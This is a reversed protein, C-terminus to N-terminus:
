RATSTSSGSALANELRGIRAALRAQEADVDAITTLRPLCDMGRIWALGDPLPQRAAAARSGGLVRDQRLHAAPQPRRCHLVPADHLLPRHQDRDPQPRRAQRLYPRRRLHRGAGRRDDQHLPDRARRPGSREGDRRHRHHRHRRLPQPQRVGVAPARPGPRRHARRRALDVALHDDGGAPMRRRLLRGLGQPLRDVPARHRLRRDAAVGQRGLRLHRPGLAEPRLGQVRPAPGRRRQPHGDGPRHDRRPALGRVVQVQRRLHRGDRPAAPLHAHRAIRPQRLDRADGREDARAPLRAADRCHHRPPRRLLARRRGEAGPLAPRGRRAAPHVQQRRRRDPPVARRPAFRGRSASRRCGGAATVLIRKMRRGRRRGAGRRAEFLAARVAAQGRAREISEYIATILELSRRGAHGDVSPPLGDRLSAVVSDLFRTHGFGYVNPPNESFQEVTDGAGPADDAFKWTRLQNVAFGAIEVSGKEGIISLSGELDTPRVATTAEITGLAGSRFKLVVVGTDEAEIRASARISKAFVSEVDGMMWELMDVHHSAQNALVGGDHAWTGRWADQDYYAQPRCWRVRVTGLVLKGFRGADLAERTKVVPVNFRNQKVVFLKVGHQECEAIMRDADDLTLAMPKEVVVHKGHRAIAVAHEAHAGSPTLVCVVDIREGAGRMMEDLSAFREVGYREGLAEARGVDSDCVAVLKAGAVQANGLIDAHRKAIRGCGLLAFNIMPQASVASRPPLDPSASAPRRARGLGRVAAGARAYLRLSTRIADSFLAVVLNAGLGTLLSAIAAGYAGYRPILFLNMAVNLAIAVLDVYMSAAQRNRAVLWRGRAVGFFVFAAMWAQVALVPAAAAFASGYVLQVLWSSALSTCAALLIGAWGMAGFLLATRRDDAAGDGSARATVMMPFLATMLAVPIFYWLETLRVAASFVGVEVYGSLNAVMVQDVRLYLLIAMASVLMPLADKLMQRALQPDVRWTAPNKQDRRYLAFLFLAALAIEASTALILQELGAGGLLLAVKLLASAFFAGNRAYVAYKMRNGSQFWCEVVDASQFILVLGALAALGLADPSVIAFALLMAAYAFCGGGLKLALSTGLIREADHPRDVLTRVAVADLGLTAVGSFISVFALVYNFRGFDASGLYRALWAILVMNAAARLVRDGVLWGTNRVVRTAALPSLAHRELLRAIPAPFGM